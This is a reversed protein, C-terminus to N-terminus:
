RSIVEKIIRGPFFQSSRQQFEASPLKEMLAFITPVFSLSDYPETILSAKPVGTRAGGAFMLTSHTSVRFLSGHNGGPNFDRVNFNWHDNALVLLDAETLRRQRLWFRRLLKGEPSNDASLPPEHLALHEHLGILANAYKTEHIARFWDLESHWCNLWDERGGAIRLKEDEWIKLPLKSQWRIRQFQIKRTSDQRLQAVPLYRLLLEDSKSQRALILAQMEEGGYLWIADQDPQEYALLAPSIEELPIRVAVFDVPHSDVGAQVNNRVKLSTLLSFYNVTVLPSFSAVYNQLQYISNPEGMARPAILDEIKIKSPNFSARNLALLNQLTRLYSSYATEDERAQNLRALIRRAEKDRGTEKDTESFDKPQARYLKEQLEIFRSLAGLEEQLETLTMTWRSRNREIIQFFSETAAARQDPSLKKSKLQLLLIHLANLDSNRLHVAARENGDLDMLATPYKRAEGKLYFSDKSETVVINVLPNFGKFQYASMPYRDTVVHHSGGAASNFLRVLNYGQSYTREDTNLSHDSLLILVTEERLPSCEIAQWVRGVMADINQLAALLSARDRHLHAVHDFEATFIDLYKINPDNLRQIVDREYQETIAGRFDIGGSWEGALDRLPKEAFYSKPADLMTTWRAARQFLQYSQYRQRYDFADFLLPIGVSDMVETGIKDVQQFRLYGFYFPFFNLYDYTRLTYRDYEVNGKIQLHQGTDLLSWSPASLSIGRVYFNQLRAGNDYFIRKIAPLLSEGTASDREAVFREIHDYSLGDAKIVVIRKAQAFAALQFVVVLLVSFGSLLAQRRLAFNRFNRM